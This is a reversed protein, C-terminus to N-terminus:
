LTAHLFPLLTGQHKRRYAHDQSLVVKLVLLLLDCALTMGICEMSDVLLGAFVLRSLLLALPIGTKM